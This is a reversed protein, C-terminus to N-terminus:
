MPQVVVGSILAKGTVPTLTLTLKGPGQVKVAYSREIVRHRGNALHFVDLRERVQPAASGGLDMDFVRQGAATVSPEVFLLRVRYNGEPLAAGGLVPELTIQVPRDSEIGARCIEEDAKPLDASVTVKAEPPLVFTSAGTEEAGLTQWVQHSADFHWTFKGPLQALKDHSTPAFNFRVAEIGLAQRQRLYYPLWRLNLSVVSGQEGRTIGGLSSFRAFQEIVPEPHCETLAARAGAPDGAKLQAQSHQLASQAQHIAAIFEELGQFYAVRDCQQRTLGAPDVAALLKLRQRCGAVVQEANTMPQDIFLDSTERAFKPAETVWQELYESLKDRASDGALKAAMDRCTASLPEDQSDSWVQRAQSAFFLDLPRTTWHIIGFGCANADALKSAFGAFPTYPRGLYNGDDHHAWIIPLVPRHAGVTRLAARSAADGLQPHGHLVNYDLGILKVGPPFFRDAAPLFKFDWTGAAVQVRDHGTEKLARQCARVIKGLGFLNHTHWLKAADPTRAVEAQFEEQWRPPMEAPTFEMWPTGGGRFWAVLCTIQPYAALLAEMQAQYFRYGEPTDPDALWFKGGGTAFRAAPPLTQILEQPNASATDVDDAFYVNMARQEAAAFVGRMLQQAAEARQGEPGLAAEAGFVAQGFVQGGWLRRVDNVHMTSWDRGRATTSLYGVPKAKGNFEYTVMPNNGYAHVMIGNFGAKHSQEIWQTWEALNWTSCGSLFNHWDFVLRDGALPCNTLAWGVFSFPETRPRPLVDGSLYFGCGLKELLAYVGYAAGRADTGAVLGLRRPGEALTAIVYAEANTLAAAALCARARPANAATGLLICRGSEPLADARLFKERPYLQGLQQALTRAALQEAPMAPAALVIPIPEGIAEGALTTFGASAVLVPLWLGVFQLVCLAAASHLANAGMIGPWDDPAGTM